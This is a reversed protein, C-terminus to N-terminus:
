VHHFLSSTHQHLRMYLIIIEREEANSLTTTTCHMDSIFFRHLILCPSKEKNRGNGRKDEPEVIGIKKKKMYDLHSHHLKHHDIVSTSSTALTKSTDRFCIM